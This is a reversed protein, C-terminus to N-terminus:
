KERMSIVPSALPAAQHRLGAFCPPFKSALDPASDSGRLLLERPIM